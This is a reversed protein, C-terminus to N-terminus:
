PNVPGGEAFRPMSISQNLWVGFETGSKVEANPGKTYRDGLFGGGAGLLGGILAGKGGGFAGGLLAGGAAGGGIFIVKRHSMGKASVGGENDSSTKGSSV